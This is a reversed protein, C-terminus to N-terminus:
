VCPLVRSTPLACTQSCRLCISCSVPEVHFSDNNANVLGAVSSVVVIRGKRQIFTPTKLAYFCPYICGYVNTDLVPKGVSPHDAAALM